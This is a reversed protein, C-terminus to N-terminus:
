INVYYICNVDGENRCEDVPKAGIGKVSLPSTSPVSKKIIGPPVTIRSTKSLRSPPTTDIIIPQKKSFPPVDSLTVYEIHADRITLRSSYENQPVLPFVNFSHSINHVNNAYM